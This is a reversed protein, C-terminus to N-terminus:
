DATSNEIKCEVGRLHLSRCVRDLVGDNDNGAVFYQEANHAAFGSPFAYIRDCINKVSGELYYGYGESGDFRQEWIVEQKSIWTEFRKRLRELQPFRANPKYLFHVEGVTWLVDRRIKPLYVLVLPSVAADASGDPKLVFPGLQHYHLVVKQDDSFENALEPQVRFWELVDRENPASLFHITKAM